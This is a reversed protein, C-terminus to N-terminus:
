NALARTKELDADKAIIISKLREFEEMMIAM